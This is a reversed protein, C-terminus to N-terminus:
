PQVAEGEGDSSATGRLDALRARATDFEPRPDEGALELARELALRAEGERGAALYAMGLHYQVMADDGLAAAAPELAAIAGEIDGRLYSIWGFTDQFAPQEIDRLRRSVVYARELAEEDDRM